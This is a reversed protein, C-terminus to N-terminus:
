KLPKFLKPLCICIIICYLIKEIRQSFKPPTKQISFEINYFDIKDNEKLKYSSKERKNNVKIKGKRINKEIFSQPVVFGNKKIWRDLRCNIYNENVLFSRKM